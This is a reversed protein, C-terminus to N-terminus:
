QEHTFNQAVAHEYFSAARLRFKSELSSKLTQINSEMCLHMIRTWTISFSLNKKKEKKSSGPKSVQVPSQHGHSTIKKTKNIITPLNRRLESAIYSNDSSSLAHNLLRYALFYIV